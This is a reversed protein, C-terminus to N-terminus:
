FYLTLRAQNLGLTVSDKTLTIVRLYVSSGQVKVTLLSGEKYPTKNIILMLRDGVQLLGGFSLSGYAQSLLIEDPTERKGVTGAKTGASDTPMARAIPADNIRFPNDAPGPPKPPNNRYQFLDEIRANTDKFLQEGLVATAARLAPVGTALVLLSTILLLTRRSNM